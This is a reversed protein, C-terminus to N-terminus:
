WYMAIQSLSELVMRDAPSKFAAAAAAAAAGGGGEMASRLQRLSERHREEVVQNVYKGKSKHMQLVISLYAAVSSASCSETKGIEAVARDLCATLNRGLAEKVM